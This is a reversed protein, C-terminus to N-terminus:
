SRGAGARTACCCGNGCCSSSEAGGRYLRPERQPCQLDPIAASEARHRPQNSPHHPNSPPHRNPNLLGQYPRESKQSPNNPNQKRRLSAKPNQKTPSFALCAITKSAIPREKGKTDEAMPTPVAFHHYLRLSRKVRTVVDVYKIHSRNWIDQALTFM